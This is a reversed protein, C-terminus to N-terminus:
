IALEAIVVHLNSIAVVPTSSFLETGLKTVASGVLPLWLSKPRERVKHISNLRSSQYLPVYLTIFCINTCMCLRNPVDPAGVQCVSLRWLCIKGNQHWQATYTQCDSGGRQHPPDKEQSCPAQTWAAKRQLLSVDVVHVHSMLMPM